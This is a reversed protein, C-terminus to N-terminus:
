SRWIFISDCSCSKFRDGRKYAEDDLLPLKMQEAAFKLASVIAPVSDILTGDWDFIILSYRKKM